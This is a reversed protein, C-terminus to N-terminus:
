PQTGERTLFEPIADDRTSRDARARVAPDVACEAAHARECSECFFRELDTLIAPCTLCQRAVLTMDSKRYFETITVKEESM